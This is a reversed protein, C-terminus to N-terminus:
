VGVKRGRKIFMIKRRAKFTTGVLKNEKYVLVYDSSEDLLALHLHKAKQVARRWTRADTM